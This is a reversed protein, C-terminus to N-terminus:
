RETVSAGWLISDKRTLPSSLNQKMSAQLGSLKFGCDGVKWASLKLWQVLVGARDIYHPLCATTDSSEPLNRSSTLYTVEM